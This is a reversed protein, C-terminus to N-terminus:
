NHPHHRERCCVAQLIIIDLIPKLKAPEALLLEFRNAPVEVAEVHPIHEGGPEFWYAQIELAGGLAMSFDLECGPFLGIESIRHKIEKVLLDVPSGAMSHQNMAIGLIRDFYALMDEETFLAHMEQRVGATFSAYPETTTKVTVDFYDDRPSVEISVDPNGASWKTALERLCELTVLDQQM